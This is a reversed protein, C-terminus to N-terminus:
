KRATVFVVVLIAFGCQIALALQVLRRIHALRESQKAEMRELGAAMGDLRAVTSPHPARLVVGDRLVTVHAQLTELASQIRVVEASREESVRALDDRVSALSVEVGDLDRRTALAALARATEQAAQRVERDLHDLVPQILKNVTDGFEDVLDIESM